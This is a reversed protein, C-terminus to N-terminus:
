KCEMSHIHTITERLTYFRYDPYLSLIRANSYCSVHLGTRSTERTFEPRKGTMRGLLALFRWLFGSLWPYLPWRPPRKGNVEAVTSFFERYSYNGGNLIFRKGGVLRDDALRVLLAAVDRVDVYGTGGLAYCPLGKAATRYLKGSSRNWMGAGLIVSPCVIVADLGEAMYQWVIQEARAKSGSYASHERGAIAPTTEDILEGEREADGLAAISSVYCFRKRHELCYAALAGTGEVNMRHMEEVQDPRFSVVAACHFLMGIGEPIYQPLDQPTASGIELWEVEKWLSEGDDYQAFVEKVAQLDSTRRRWACVSHGTHLLRYLLHSGVLGTAGTVLVKDM